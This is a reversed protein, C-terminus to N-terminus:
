AGRHVGADQSLPSPGDPWLSRTRERRLRRAITVTALLLFAITPLLAFVELTLGGKSHWETAVIVIAFASVLVFLIWIAGWLYWLSSPLGTSLQVAHFASYVCASTTGALSRDIEPKSSV